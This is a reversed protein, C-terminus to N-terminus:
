RAAPNLCSGWGVVSAPHGEAPMCGVWRALSRGCFAERGWDSGLHFCTAKSSSGSTVGGPSKNGRRYNVTLSVASLCATTGISACKRQLPAPGRGGM